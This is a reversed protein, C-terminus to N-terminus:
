RHMDHFLERTLSSAVASFQRLLQARYAPQPREAPGAPHLVFRFAPHDGGPATGGVQFGEVVLGAVRSRPDRVIGLPLYRDVIVSAAAQDARGPRCDQSVASGLAPLPAVV